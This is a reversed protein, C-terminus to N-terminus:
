LGYCDAVRDLAFGLILKASRPPWHLLKEAAEIGHGACVVAALVDRLGPGAAELARDLRRRASLQALTPDIANPAASPQKRSCQL